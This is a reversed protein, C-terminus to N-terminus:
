NINPATRRSSSSLSVFHSQIWGQYDAPFAGGRGGVGGGNGGDWVGASGGGDCEGSQEESKEAGCGGKGWIRAPVRRFVRFWPVMSARRRRRPFLNRHVPTVGCVMGAEIEWPAPPLSSLPAILLWGPIKGM